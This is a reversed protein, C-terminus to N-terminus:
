RTAFHNHAHSMYRATEELPETERRCSQEELHRYAAFRGGNSEYHQDASWSLITSSSRPLWSGCPVSARQSSHWSGGLAELFRFLLLMFMGYYRKM